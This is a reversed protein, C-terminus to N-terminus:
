PSDRETSAIFCRSVRPTISAPEHERVTEMAEATHFAFCCEGGATGDLDGDLNRGYVDAAQDTLCVTYCTGPSLSAYPMFICESLDKEWIFRGQVPPTIVFAREVGRHEMSQNFTIRISDTTDVGTAGNEPSTSEITPIGGYRASLGSADFSEPSAGGGGGSGGAPGEEAMERQPLLGFPLTGNPVDTSSYEQQETVKGKNTLEIVKKGMNEDTQPVDETEEPPQVKEDTEEAICSFTGPHADWEAFDDMKRSFVLMSEEEECSRCRFELHLLDSAKDIKVPSVSIGAARLLGESPNSVEFLDFRERM